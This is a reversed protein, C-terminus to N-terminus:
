FRRMPRVYVNMGKSESTPTTLNSSNLFVKYAYWGGNESSTWYYKNDAATFAMKKTLILNTEVLQLENVSPLFWDAYGNLSYSHCVKAAFSTGTDSALATLIVSTNEKGSGIDQTTNGILSSNAQRWYTSSLYSPSVELYRWGNSVSGKDYCVIGGAPGTDGVNYTQAAPSDVQASPTSPSSCSALFVVIGLLVLQRVNM